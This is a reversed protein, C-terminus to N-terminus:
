LILECVLIEDFCFYQLKMKKWKILMVCLIRMRECINVIKIGKNMVSFMVRVKFVM